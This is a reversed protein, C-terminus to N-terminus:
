KQLNPVPAGVWGYEVAVAIVQPTSNLGVRTRMQAMHNKITSSKRGLRLAIEKYTLGETVLLQLIKSQTPTLEIRAMTGRKKQLQMWRLVNSLAERRTYPRHTLPNTQALEHRYLAWASRKVSLLADQAYITQHANETSRM